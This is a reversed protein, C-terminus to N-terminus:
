LANGQTIGYLFGCLLLLIEITFIKETKNKFEYFSIKRSLLDNHFQRKLTTEIILVLVLSTLLVKM